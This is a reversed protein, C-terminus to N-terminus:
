VQLVFDQPRLAARLLRLFPLSFFSAAWGRSVSSLDMQPRGPSIHTLVALRLLGNSLM